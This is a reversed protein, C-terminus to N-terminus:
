KFCNVCFSDINLIDSMLITLFNNCKKKISISTCIDYQSVSLSFIFKYKSRRVDFIDKISIDSMLSILYGKEMTARPRYYLVWIYKRGLSVSEINVDLSVSFLKRIKIFNQIIRCNSSFVRSLLFVWRFFFIRWLM